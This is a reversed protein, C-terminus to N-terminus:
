KRSRRSFWSKVKAWGRPKEDLSISNIYNADRKSAEPAAARMQEATQYPQKPPLNQIAEAPLEGSTRWKDGSASLKSIMMNPNNAKMQADEQAEFTYFSGRKEPSLGNFIEEFHAPDSFKLSHLILYDNDNKLEAAQELIKERQAKEESKEYANYEARREPSLNAIDRSFEEPNTDKRKLLVVYERRENVERKQEPTMNAWAEGYEAIDKASDSLSRTVLDHSKEGGLPEPNLRAAIQGEKAFYKNSDEPSEGHSLDAESTAEIKNPLDDELSGKLVRWQEEEVPSLPKETTNTQPAREGNM